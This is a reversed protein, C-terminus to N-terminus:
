RSRREEEAARTAAEGGYDRLIEETFRTLKGQGRSVRVTVTHRRLFTPERLNGRREFSKELVVLDVVGADASATESELTWEMTIPDNFPTSSPRISAVNSAVSGLEITRGMHQVTRPKCLGDVYALADKEALAYLTNCDGHVVANVFTKYTKFATSEGIGCSALMALITLAGVAAWGANGSVAQTSGM